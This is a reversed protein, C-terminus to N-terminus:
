RTNANKSSIGWLANKGQTHTHALLRCRPCVPLPQALSNVLLFPLQEARSVTKNRPEPSSPHPITRSKSAATPPTSPTTNPPLDTATMLLFLVTSTTGVQTHTHTHQTSMRRGFYETCKIKFGRISWLRRLCGGSCRGKGRWM